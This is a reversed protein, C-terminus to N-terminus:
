KTNVPANFIHVTAGESTSSISASSSKSSSSSSSTSSTPSPSTALTVNTPTVNIPASATPLNFIKITAAAETSSSTSETASSSGSTSTLVPDGSSLVKGWPDNGFVHGTWGWRSRCSNVCNAGSWFAQKEPQQQKSDDSDSNTDYGESSPMGRTALAISLIVFTASLRAM